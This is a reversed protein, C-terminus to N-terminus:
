RRNSDFLDKFFCSGGCLGRGVWAQILDLGEIQAHHLCLPKRARKFQRCPKINRECVICYLAICYLAICCLVTCYLAICHLVICYSVICYWYSIICYLPICHLVIFNLVICYSVNCYLYLVIRYVVICCLIICYLAICYLVFVFVFVFVICYLVFVICICTCIGIWKERKSVALMTAAETATAATCAEQSNAHATGTKFICTEQKKYAETQNSHWAQNDDM